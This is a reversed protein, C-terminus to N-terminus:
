FGIEKMIQARTRAEKKIIGATQLLRIVDRKEFESEGRRRDAFYKTVYGNTNEQCRKCTVFVLPNVFESYIIELEGWCNSCYYNKVTKHALVLNIAEM